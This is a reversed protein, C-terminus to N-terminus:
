YYITAKTQDNGGYEMSRDRVLTSCSRMFDTLADEVDGPNRGNEKENRVGDIDKELDTRMLANVIGNKLRILMLTDIGVM